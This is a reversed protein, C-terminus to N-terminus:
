TRAQRRAVLDRVRCMLERLAFVTTAGAIGYQLWVARPYGTNLFFLAVAAGTLVLAVVLRGAPRQGFPWRRAWAMGLAAALWGGFAGMLVDLPWHAGVMVRSGAVVVALVLVAARAGPHVLQAVWVGALTFMTTAHGSPFSGHRLTRGFVYFSDGSLVAAPRPVSFPLLQKFGHTWALAFISALLVAWVAQPYRRVVFALLAIAVLADGFVTVCSWFVEGAPAGLRNFWLFLAQNTDGLYIAAALLAAVVPVGLLWARELRPAAVIIV